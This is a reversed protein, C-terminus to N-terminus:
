KTNRKTKPKRSIYRHNQKTYRKVKRQNIHKKTRMQKVLKKSQRKLKNKFRGGLVMSQGATSNRNTGLGISFATSSSTSVPEDPTEMSITYVSWLPIDHEGIATTKEKIDTIPEFIINYDKDLSMQDGLNFKFLNYENLGGKKINEPKFAKAVDSNKNGGRPKKFASESESESESESSVEAISDSANTPIASFNYLVVAEGRDEIAISDLITQYNQRNPISSDLNAGSCDPINVHDRQIGSFFIAKINVFIMSIYTHDNSPVHQDEM